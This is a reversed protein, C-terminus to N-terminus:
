ESVEKCNKLILSDSSTRWHHLTEITELLIGERFLEDRMSKEGADFSFEMCHDDDSMTPSVSKDKKDYFAYMSNVFKLNVLEKIKLDSAEYQNRLSEVLNDTAPNVRNQTIDKTDQEFLSVIESGCLCCPEGECGFVLEAERESDLTAKDDGTSKVYAKDLCKSQDGCNPSYEEPFSEVSIVLLACLCGCINKLM